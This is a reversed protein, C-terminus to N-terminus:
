SAAERQFLAFKGSPSFGVALLGPDLVYIVVGALV